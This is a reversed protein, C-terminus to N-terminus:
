LKVDRISKALKKLGIDELVSVLISWSGGESLWERFIRCNIDESNKGLEKELAGIRAGTRDELLHIGFKFYKAGIERPLNVKKGNLLSFSM